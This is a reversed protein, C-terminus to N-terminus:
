FNFLLVAKLFLVHNMHWQTNMSIQALPSNENRKPIFIESMAQPSMQTSAGRIGRHAIVEM